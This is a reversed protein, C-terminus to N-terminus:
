LTKALNKHLDLAVQRHLEEPDIGFQISYHEILRDRQDAYRRFSRNLAGRVAPSDLDNLFMDFIQQKDM